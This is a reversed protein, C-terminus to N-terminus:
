LGEIEELPLSTRIVGVIRGNKEVPIAVYMMEQKLTTSYRISKGVQGKLAREIEPRIAHNEMRKPGEESDGLVVGDPLHSQVVERVLEAQIRLNGEINKLYYREIHKSVLLILTIVTITIISFYLTFQRWMMRM